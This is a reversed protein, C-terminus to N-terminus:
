SVCAIVGPIAEQIAEQQAEAFHLPLPLDLPL